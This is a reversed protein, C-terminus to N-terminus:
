DIARLSELRYRLDLEPWDFLVLLRDEGTVWLDCPPSGISESVLRYHSAVFSGAPTEVSVGRERREALLTELQGDPGDTGDWRKSTYYATLEQQGGAEEDYSWFTWGDHMVAHTMLHFRDPVRERADVPQGDRDVVVRLSDGVTRFYGTGVWREAVQLRVFGDVLRGEASVTSIADRLFRSDKTHALCRLTRSGDLNRTLVFDERGREKGSTRHRYVLTGQWGALWTM